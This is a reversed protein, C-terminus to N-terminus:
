KLYQMVLLLNSKYIFREYLLLVVYFCRYMLNKMRKYRQKQKLIEVYVFALAILNSIVRWLIAAYKRKLDSCQM